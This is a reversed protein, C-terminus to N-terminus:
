SGATTYLHCPHNNIHKNTDPELSPPLFTLPQPYLFLANLSQSLRQLNPPSPKRTSLSMQVGRNQSFAYDAYNIVHKTTETGLSPLILTRPDLFLGETIKLMEVRKTSEAKLYTTSLSMQVGRNQSCAYDAYKIVHKTTKTGLSTTCDSHEPTQLM